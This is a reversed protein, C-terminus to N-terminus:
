VSQSLSRIRPMPAIASLAEVGGAVDATAIAYYRHRGQPRVALLGGDSLKALRSCGTQPSVRAIRALEGAPLARGDLLAGVISARARDALLAAITSVDAHYRM